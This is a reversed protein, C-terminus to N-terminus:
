SRKSLGPRAPLPWRMAMASMGRSGDANTWKSTTMIVTGQPTEQRAETEVIETRGFEDPTDM